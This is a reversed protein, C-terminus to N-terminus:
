KAIKLLIDLLMELDEETVTPAGDASDGSLNAALLQAKTLKKSGRLYANLITLDTISLESNGDLDGTVVFTYTKIVKGDYLLQATDGTGIFRCADEPSLAENGHFLAINRNNDLLELVTQVTCMPSALHITQGKERIELSASTIGEPRVKPLVEYTTYGCRSCTDYESWGAADLTPEQGAHHVLAHGLAAIKQHGSIYQKCDDCFVGDTCGTKTCTAATGAVNRTHTHSCTPSTTYYTAGGDDPAFFRLKQNKINETTPSTYCRWDKVSYVGLYRPTSLGLTRLYGSASDVTFTKADGTGVRVGNNESICYLWSAPDGDPHFILSGDAATELTWLINASVSSTVTGSTVTIEVPTPGAADGQDNSMAYYLNSKLVAIILEDGDRLESASKVTYDTSRAEADVYSYLAYLSCNGAPAYSSYQTPKTGTGSPIEGAVWSGTFSYAGIDPLDAPLAVSEGSYCSLTSHVAGAVYLTVTCREKAAFSVTVTCDSSPTVTIVNGNRTFAATGSTVEVNSIAYGTKPSATVTRGSVSVTGYATNASVASVTYSSSPSGAGSPTQYNAPVDAGLLLFALEPYDVFVNRVGTISQVSDNKGMEWTDVPDEALWRLLVARNEIVGGSGYFSGTNGWRMLHQLMLRAIDGHLNQGNGDPDFYGSSEGYATNGRSNNESTVTPRIMMIDNEDNGELGKSNPWTHERNWTSGDWQNSVQRGSYFSSLRSTNSETCDTYKLLTKLSAYNTVYHQKSVLMSHIATGLASSYIASASASSSGSLSSLQAYSYSGTYYSVAYTTLFTAVEDRRGWNYIYGNDTVYRVESASTPRADAGLSSPASTLCLALCLFVPLFRKTAKKM